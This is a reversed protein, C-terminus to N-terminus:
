MTVWCCPFAGELGSATVSIVHNQQEEEVLSKMVETLVTTLSLGPLQSM